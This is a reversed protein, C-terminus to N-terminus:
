IAFTTKWSRSRSSTFARPSRLAQDLTTCLRSVSPGDKRAKHGVIVGGQPAQYDPWAGRGALGLALASGLVVLPGLRGPRVRTRGRRHVTPLCSGTITM